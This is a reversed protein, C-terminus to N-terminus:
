PKGIVYFVPHTHFNKLISRDIIQTSQGLTGEISRFISNMLSNQHKTLGLHNKITWPICLSCLIQGNWCNKLRKIARDYLIKLTWLFKTTQMGSGKRISLALKLATNVSSSQTQYLKDLKTYKMSKYFDAFHVSLNALSWFYGLYQFYVIETRM